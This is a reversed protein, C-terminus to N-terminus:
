LTPTPNDLPISGAAVALSLDRSGEPDLPIFEAAKESALIFDVVAESWGDVHVWPGYGVGNKSSAVNILYSLKGPDPDTVADQSEEDTLVILRDYCGSVARVAAGLLTGDSPVARQIADALAFGRRPPVVAIRKSFAVIEVESCIERLLVALAFAADKRTLDSKASVQAGMSPSTDILLLTKGGMKEAQELCRIMLPELADELGPVARAAAIFRFPLVRDTKMEALAARILTREVGAATMNRLNRLLALAGLKKESLLRTWSEKKDHGKSLEVEWTDPTALTGDVLWKWVLAQEASTPKAHCLFLVDRLKIANDRNYKALAYEDFKIFARALGKKVQASLPQRKEKWYLALFEALEDPRQIVRELTEAVYGRHSPVRAMERVLFLPAHRLKMKERAEVAIAAAVEPRVLKVTDAIHSAISEGDEYFEREFLLCSMVSRRLQQEPNIRRARVGENNHIPTPATNTRM